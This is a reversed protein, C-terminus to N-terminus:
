VFDVKEPIIGRCAYWIYNHEFMKSSTDPSLTVFLLGKNYQAYGVDAASMICPDPHSHFFAEVDYSWGRGKARAYMNAMYLAQNSPLFSHRPDNAINPAPIFDTIIDKRNKILYGGAEQPKFQYAFTELKKKVDLKVKMHVMEYKEDLV